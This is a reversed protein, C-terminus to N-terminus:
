DANWLLCHISSCYEALQMAAMMISQPNRQCDGNASERNRAVISQRVVIGQLSATGEVFLKGSPSTVRIRQDDGATDSAEDPKNWRSRLPQRASASSLLNRRLLSGPVFVLLDCDPHDTLYDMAAATMHRHVAAPCDGNAIVTYRAEAEEGVGIVMDRVSIRQGRISYGNHPPMVVM